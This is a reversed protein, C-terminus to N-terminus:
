IITLRDGHMQWQIGIKHWCSKSFSCYFLLNELTEEPPSDCLMCNFNSRIHLTEKQAYEKYKVLHNKNKNKDRSWIFCSGIMDVKHKIGVPLRYFSLM